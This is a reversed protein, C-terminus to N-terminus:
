DRGGHKRALRAALADARRSWFASQESIWDEAAELGEPRISLWHERGRVSRRVLGASELVGIHRSVGAFTMPLPAALDTIRAEGARLAVLLARRTPDALAAYTRDLVQDELMKNLKGPRCSILCM